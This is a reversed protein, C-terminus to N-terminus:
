CETEDELGDALAIRANELDHELAALVVPAPTGLLEVDTIHENPIRSLEGSHERTQELVVVLTDRRTVRVPRGVVVCHSGDHDSHIAVRAEATTAAILTKRFDAV